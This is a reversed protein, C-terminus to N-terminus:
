IIAYKFIYQTIKHKREKCMNCIEWNNQKLERAAQAISEYEKLFEGNLNYCNIKKRNYIAVNKMAERTKISINNRHELTFVIGKRGKSINDCAEKTRKLGTIAKRRKERTEQSENLNKNRIKERTKDQSTKSRFSFTDGGTGGMTMNYGYKRLYTKDKKIWYIEREHLINLLDKKNKREYTEKIEWIFNEFEYKRIARHFHSEDLFKITEKLHRNKRYDFNFTFGYYKKNSPSIACYILGNM